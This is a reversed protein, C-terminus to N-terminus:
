RWFDEPLEGAKLLQVAQLATTGCECRHTAIGATRLACQANPGCEGILVDSVKRDSLARAVCVEPDDRAGRAPNEVSEWALTDPDVLLLYASRCLGSEVKAEFSPSSVTLAVTSM